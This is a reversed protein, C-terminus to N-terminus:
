QPPSANRVDVIVADPQHSRVAAPLGSADALQAVVDVGEDALLRAIGARVLPADDVLIVRLSREAAAHHRVLAAL